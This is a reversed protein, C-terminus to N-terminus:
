FRCFDNVNQLARGKRGYMAWSEPNADYVMAIDPMYALERALRKPSWAHTNSIPLNHLELFEQLGLAADHSNSEPIFLTAVDVQVFLTRVVHWIRAAMMENLKWMQWAEFWLGDSARVNFEEVDSESIHGLAGEFVLMVRPQVVNSLNGNKM